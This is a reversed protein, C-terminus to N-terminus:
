SGWPSSCIALIVMAMCSVIESFIVELLGCRSALLHHFLSSVIALFTYGPFFVMVFLFFQLRLQNIIINKNKIKKIM